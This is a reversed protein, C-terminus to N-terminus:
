PKKRVENLTSEWDKKRAQCCLGALIWVVTPVVILLLAYFNKKGEPFGNSYILAVLSLGLMFGLAAWLHEHFYLVERAVYGVLIAVLVAAPGIAGAVMGALFALIALFLKERSDKESMVCEKDGSTNIFMHVLYDKNM